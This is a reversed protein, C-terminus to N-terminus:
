AEAVAVDAYVAAFYRAGRLTEEGHFNEGPNAGVHELGERELETGPGNKPNNPHLWLLSYSFDETEDAVREAGFLLM